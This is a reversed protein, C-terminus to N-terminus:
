YKLISLDNEALFQKLQDLEEKLEPRSSSYAEIYKQKLREAESKDVVWKTIYGIHPRKDLWHMLKCSEEPQHNLVYDLDNLTTVKTFIPEITEKYAKLLENAASEISEDTYLSEFDEAGEVYLEVIDHKGVQETQLYINMLDSFVTWENKYKKGTGFVLSYVKEVLLFTKNFSLYAGSLFMTTNFKVEVREQGNEFDRVFAKKSKVLSFGEKSFYKDLALLLRESPKLQTSTTEM